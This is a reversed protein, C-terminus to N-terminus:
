LLCANFHILKIFDSVSPRGSFLPGDRVSAGSHHWKDGDPRRDCSFRQSVSKHFQRGSQKVANGILLLFNRARNMGMQLCVPPAPAGEKVIRFRTECYCSAKQVCVHYLPVITCDCGKHFPAVILIRVIWVDGFSHSLSGFPCGWPNTRV